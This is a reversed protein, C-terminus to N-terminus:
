IEEEGTAVQEPPRRRNHRRADSIAWIVVGALGLTGVVSILSDASPARGGQITALVLLVLSVIAGVAEWTSALIILRRALKRWSRLEM